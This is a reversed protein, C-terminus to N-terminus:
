QALLWESWRMQCVGHCWFHWHHAPICYLTQSRGKYSFWWGPGLPELVPGHWADWLIIHRETFLKQQTEPGHYLCFEQSHSVLHSHTQSSTAILGVLAYPGVWCCHMRFQAQAAGFPLLALATTMLKTQCIFVSQIQYLTVTWDLPQSGPYSIIYTFIYPIHENVSIWTRGFDMHQLELVCHLPM